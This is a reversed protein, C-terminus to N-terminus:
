GTTQPAVVDVVIRDFISVAVHFGDSIQVCLEHRGPELEVLRSSAGNGAHAVVKNEPIVLGPTICGEDVIVHFHGEGDRTTGAPGLSFNETEVEILVPSTVTAGDEPSVIEITPDTNRYALADSLNAETTQPPSAQESGCGAALAVLLWVAVPAASSWGWRRQKNMM